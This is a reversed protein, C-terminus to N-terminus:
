PCTGLKQEPHRPPSLCAAMQWLSARHPWLEGVVVHFQTIASPSARGWCDLLRGCSNCPQYPTPVPACVSRSWQETSATHGDLRPGQAEEGSSRTRPTLSGRNSPPRLTPPALQLSSLRLEFRFAAPSTIVIEAKLLQIFHSVHEHAIIPWTAESQLLNGTIRYSGESETQTEIWGATM